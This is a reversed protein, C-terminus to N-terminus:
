PYVGGRLYAKPSQVGDRNCGCMCGRLVPCHYCLFLNDPTAHLCVPGSMRRCEGDRCALLVQVESVAPRHGPPPRATHLPGLLPHNAKPEIGAGAVMVKTM